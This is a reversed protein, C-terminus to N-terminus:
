SAPKWIMLFLMIVLLITMAAGGLNARTEAADDGDAMAREAPILVAHLIGNMAVWLIFATALWPQSMKYLEDSMGALGFGFVGNLVLAPGYIRRGNGVYLKLLESRGSGALSTKAQSALVPHVFAPGFAVIASLVHLLLMINYPTDGVAAFLM